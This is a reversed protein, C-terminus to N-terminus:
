RKPVDTATLNSGIIAHLSGLGRAVLGTKSVQTCFFIQLGSYLPQKACGYLSLLHRRSGYLWM